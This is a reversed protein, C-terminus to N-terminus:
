SRRTYSLHFDLAWDSGDRSQEWRGDIRRGDVSFTGIFRQAFELPTFDPTERLLMWVGDRFDMAYVRAIGRSDFYHQRFSQRGSDFGMIAISNPAGPAETRQILFQRGLEWEFVARGTADAPGFPFTAEVVWEGIFSELREMAISAAHDPEM